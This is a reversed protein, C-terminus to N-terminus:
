NQREALEKEHRELLQHIRQSPSLLGSISMDHNLINVIHAIYKSM